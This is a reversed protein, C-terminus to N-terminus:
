VLIEDLVRTGYEGFSAQEVGVSKLMTLLVDGVEANEARVHRGADVLGGGKGALVIPLEEHEHRNGDAIESSFFVLSNDLMTTGDAEVTSQMRALLHGLMSIEWRGIDALAQLKDPDDQHHSYEHHGGPHGLFGYSRNSGGNADM